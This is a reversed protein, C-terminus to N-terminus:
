QKLLVVKREADREDQRVCTESIHAPKRGDKTLVGELKEGSKISRFIRGFADSIDPKSLGSDFRAGAVPHGAEDHIRLLVLCQDPFTFHDCPTEVYTVFLKLTEPWTAKVHRVLVLGCIDFGVGIDLVGLPADCFRAIGRVDTTTNSLTTQLNRILSVAVNPVPERAPTSVKVEFSCYSTEGTALATFLFLLGIVLPVRAIAVNHNDATQTVCWGSSVRM